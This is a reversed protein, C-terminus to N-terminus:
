VLCPFPSTLLVDERADESDECKVTISFTSSSSRMKFSVNGPPSDSSWREIRVWSRHGQIIVSMEIMKDKNNYKTQVITTGTVCEKMDTSDGNSQAPSIMLPCSM